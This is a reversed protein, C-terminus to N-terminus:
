MPHGMPAIFLQRRKKLYIINLVSFPISIIGSKKRAVLGPHITSLFIRCEFSTLSTMIICPTSPQPAM